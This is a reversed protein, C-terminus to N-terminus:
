LHLALVFLAQPVMVLAIVIGAALATDFLSWTPRSELRESLVPWADRPPSTVDIPPLASLLLRRLEEDTM